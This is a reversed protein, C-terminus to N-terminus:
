GNRWRRCRRGCGTEDSNLGLTADLLVFPATERAQTWADLADFAQGYRDTVGLLVIAEAAMNVVEDRRVAAPIGDVLLRAATVM